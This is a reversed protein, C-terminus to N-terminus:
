IQLLVKTTKFGNPANRTDLFTLGRLLFIAVAIKQM